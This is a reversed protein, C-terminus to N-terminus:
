VTSDLGAAALLKLASPESIWGEIGLQYNNSGRSDLHLKAGGNSNQVVSFPYSAGATNHIILCGKAGQRAAEEFKYTWRGYYTMTKGKFLISDQTTFGPDNVMVLVVKDKVDLGAYDNWNYEPAVVGFGAFVLGANDISISTDTRETFIVFDEMNKFDFKGKTTQVSLQPTGKPKIEVLPVQQLFSNNNGPELGSAQCQSQLYSITKTEGPTFPRRGQYDDSALTSIHALLSDKLISEGTATTTTESNTCSIVLTVLAVPLFLKYM